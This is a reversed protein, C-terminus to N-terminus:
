HQRRGGDHDQRLAPEDFPQDLGLLLRGAPMLSTAGQGADETAQRVRRRPPLLAAARLTVPGQGVGGNRSAPGAGGLWLAARISGLCCAVTSRPRPWSWCPDGRVPVTLM